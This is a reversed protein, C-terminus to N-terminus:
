FIAVCTKDILKAKRTFFLVKKVDFSAPQKQRDNGSEEIWVDTLCSVINQLKVLADTANINENAEHGNVFFGTWKPAFCMLAKTRNEATKDRSFYSKFKEYMSQDGYVYAVGDCQNWTATLFFCYLLARVKSICSLQLVSSVSSSFPFLINIKM